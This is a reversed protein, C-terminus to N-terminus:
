LWSDRGARAGGGPGEGAGRGHREPLFDEPLYERDVPANRRLVRIQHRSLDAIQISWTPTAVIWRGDGGKILLIRHHWRLGNADDDFNILAQKEPIDLARSQANQAAAAM